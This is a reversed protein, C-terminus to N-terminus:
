LSKGPRKYVRRLEFFLWGLLALVLPLFYYILRFALLAGLAAATPQEDPSIFYIVTAELVGIGGPVHSLLSLFQAMGFISLFDLFDGSNNSPPLLLYLALAALAWEVASVIIQFVAVQWSPLDFRLRKLFAPSWQFLCVLFYAIPVMTLVFGLIRLWHPSITMTGPIEPPAFLFLAGTLGLFGTWFSFSIFVIITLIEKGSYRFASYMRLRVTNGGMNALGINNTLAFAIFSTIVTKWSAITKGLYNVALVDYLTLVGYSAFTAILSYIVQRHPLEHLAGVIQDWTYQKVMRHVFFIAVAFILIGLIASARKIWDPSSHTTELNSSM